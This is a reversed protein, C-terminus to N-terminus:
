AAGKQDAGIIIRTDSLYGHPPVVLNTPAPVNKFVRGALDFKSGHCPCFFGGKWDDGLGSAIGADLRRDPSCGLHTCIGVLVLIEPKISRAGNQAYSPQQDVVKSGPDALLPEAEPLSKLMAPTRRLIWVPKGQWEVTLLQGSELKSIDVEVPAGAARARASPFMSLVFPTLAFATGVVGLGSTIALLRRRRPNVVEEGM